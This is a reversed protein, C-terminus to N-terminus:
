LPPGISRLLLAFLSDALLAIALVPIVGLLVLDLASSLLGQFVIAGLGGAGILAAVVVLGILQVTTLRVASLLVPLALPIEIQWFRQRSSLGMATAADLVSPAVQRLGSSMGHVIPLLAYLTLAIVAPLLGIGQVGTAPWAQGLWALPGILLGFLAISPITQIFNLLVILPAAIRSSRAAALGLPLGILLAPLLSLGVIQVHRFVAATFVEERNAYEKLLSLEDLAGGALLLAPPLLLLLGLPRGPWLRRLADAAIAWLLLTALWYGGGLSVRLLPTALGSQRAAEAGALATLGGLLVAAALVTGADVVRRPALMVAVGLWALAGGLLHWAGIPVAWLPVAQGTLLRNPAIRLFPFAFLAVLLGVLLVALVRQRVAATPGTKGDVIGAHPVPQATM